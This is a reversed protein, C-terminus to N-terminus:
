FQVGVGLYFNRPAATIIGPGPYGTARRTFYVQDTLNNVGAEVSLFRWNYEASLDMVWYSPIIGYIGNPSSIANTAETFQESLYGFQFALSFDNYSGELGTKFNVEPVNEVRNGNYATEIGDMYSAETLALNLYASLKYERNEYQLAKLIDLEAFSEVGYIRADGINTTVRKLRDQYSGIRDRYSLYFLGVDVTLAQGISGRIGLDANFGKEDELDPDITISPNVVRINNFTIARYNQSFNAYSELTNSWKYALGIGALLLSRPRARYENTLSDILLEGTGPVRVDSQYFGEATTKIYDYRLGPTISLRQSLNFVNEAFASFNYSPFEYRSLLDLKNESIFRFDPDSQKSGLGQTKETFGRYVRTGLLLASPQDNLRYRHLLRTENGINLYQDVLLDRNLYPEIDLRQPQSLIGLAKRSGLLGFSRSNLKTKANFRYNFHLAALNWDVSFWNRSRLSQYPDEEFQQDTLGGPQQALYQMRTYEGIVEFKENARYGLRAHATYTDFESNPLGCEGGRYNIFGFYNLNGSQGGLDNYTNFYGLSNYTNITQGSLKKDPDGKKLKLNIMGGFQTGYQLSAAGRVVEIREIAQMPPAYYSEPYGLADAAMDYGNQRMNFNSSRDPSLGRAGVGLQLGACDSEWVNVGPVKAFVQRASGGALNATMQRLNIVENKKAAYIAVGDINKLRAYTTSSERNGKVEIPGLLTKEEKLTVTKRLTSEDFRLKLLKKQFGILNLEVRQVGAPIQRITAQGKLGTIAGKGLEPLSVSVFPLPQGAEDKATLQLQSKQASTSLSLVIFVFLTSIRM